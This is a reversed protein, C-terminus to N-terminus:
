EPVRQVPCSRFRWPHRVGPRLRRGLARRAGAVSRKQSIPNELHVVHGRRNAGVQRWTDKASVVDAADDALRQVGIGGVPYAAGDACLAQGHAFGLDAHAAVTAQGARQEDLRQDAAQDLCAAM